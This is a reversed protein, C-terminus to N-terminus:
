RPPRTQAIIRDATRMCLAALTLTPNATAFTPFTGSGVIFLNRHDWSCQWADVVSNRPTAGMRFTGGIHGAGFYRVRRLAGGDNPAIEIAAPHQSAFDTCQKAGARAFIRDAVDVSRAIGARTYDCLDYQIAPRPLGLGDREDALAVRNSFQPAQEMEFSLHFQRGLLGGLRSRLASGALQEGHPNLGSHNSGTVFDLTTTDPDGLPFNWGVNGIEVRFASHEARFSGDRFNEIGSTALPGRYAGIPEPMLGWAVFMPHDMLNRGVLDTSNAVGGEPNGSGASMLLLRASEIANAALIFHDGRIERRRGAAGMAAVGEIVSISKIYGNKAVSIRTAVADSLLSVNGTAIADQLAMLPSYRAGSPCFPICSTSGQCAPRGGHPRSQRASPTSTVTVPVGDVELGALKRALVGDFWSPPLPPQPYRYGPSFTVGGYAQEEASGSVGLEHEAAEYWPALEDYGVPWDVFRGYRERMRFDAPLMRLAIGMWSRTTGGVVREYGSAFPLPGKQIYYSQRADQWRERDLSLVVPRGVADGSPDRLEGEANAFAPAFPASPIKFSAGHYADHRDESNTGAEVVLTRLGACGLMRAIVAGALGSGIIVADFRDGNSITSSM